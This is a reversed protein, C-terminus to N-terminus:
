QYEFQINSKKAPTSTPQEEKKEDDTPLILSPIPIPTIKVVKPPEKEDPNSTANQDLSKDENEENNKRDKSIEVTAKDTLQQVDQYEYSNESNYESEQSNNQLPTAKIDDKHVVHSKHETNSNNEKIREKWFEWDNGIIITFEEDKIPETENPSVYEVDGLFEKFTMATKPDNIHDIIRSAMYDKRDADSVRMIKYGRKSLEDALEIAQGEKKSGNLIGVHIESPMLTTDRLLLRKVLAKKEDEYPVIYSIEGSAGDDGKIVGTKINKRDFDKYLRGLDLLQTVTLDTEISEYIIKVIKEMRMINSPKKLERVLASMFQQQRRIRGWDGEEDNRFRAYGIAQEGNLLQPGKKLHIHLNGWNDDYDMDKEVDLELGGLANVVNEAAKEKITIYHDISVELFNEVCKKALNIGGYVYAANIKDYGHEPSLEVWTDRPISLINISEAKSDVSVVFMTDSRVNKTYMIGQETRNEDLGICLILMNDKGEFAVQGPNFVFKISEVITGGHVDPPTICYIYTFGGILLLFASIMAILCFLFIRKTKASKGNRFSLKLDKAM